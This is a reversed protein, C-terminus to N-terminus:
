LMDLIYDDTKLCECNVSTNDGEENIYMVHLNTEEKWERVLQDVCQGTLNEKDSLRTSITM